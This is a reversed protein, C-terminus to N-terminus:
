EQEVKSLGGGVSGLFDVGRQSTPPPIMLLGERARASAVGKTSGRLLESALRGANGFTSPLQDLLFIASGSPNDGGAVPVKVREGVRAFTRMVKIDDASFFERMLDKNNLLADNLNKGFKKPSFNKGQDKGLLRLFAAERLPAFDESPVIRKIARVDSTAGKKTISNKGFILNIADDADVKLKANEGFGVKTTLAEVVDKDKFRSYFGAAQKRAAHIADVATKDGTLLGGTVYDAEIADIEKKLLGGIRATSSGPQAQKIINTNINKRINELAGFKYRMSKNGTLAAQKELQNFFTQISADGPIHFAEKSAVRKLRTHADRMVTNPIFAKKSSALAYADTMAKNEVQKMSNLKSQLHAGADAARDINSGGGFKLRLADINAQIAADQKAKFALSEAASTDGLVGKYAQNEIRQQAAAGTVQGTTQPIPEPLLEAELIRSKQSEPFGRTKKLAAKLRDRNINNIDVGADTLIKSEKATLKDGRAIKRVIKSAGRILSPAVMEIGTVVGGAVGAEGLDTPQQSGFEQALEDAGISTLFAGAGQSLARTLLSAGKTAAGVVKSAPLFKTIESAIDLADQQSAGPRNIYFQKDNIITFLNDNADRSFQANPIFSKIIEAKGEESPEAFFGGAIKMTVDDSVGLEEAGATQIEPLDLAANGKIASGIRSLISADDKKPRKRAYFEDLTFSAQGTGITDQLPIDAKPPVGSMNKRAYFEDLTMSKQTDYEPM